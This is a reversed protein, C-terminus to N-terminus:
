RLQRFNQRGCNFRNSNATTLTISGDSGTTFFFARGRDAGCARTGNQPAGTATYPETPTFGACQPLSPDIECIDRNDEIIAPLNPLSTTQFGIPLTGPDGNGPPVLFDGVGFGNDGDIDFVPFEPALGTRVDLAMLFGFGGAACRNDDPVLTVFFVIDGIPLPNRVIREGAQPLDAFWGRDEPNGTSTNFWVPQDGDPNTVVRFGGSTGITTEHLQSRSFDHDTTDITPSADRDWIAYFSQVPQNLTTVDTAEIFKGTGFLVLVGNNIGAPHRKVSPRSTISQMQGSGDRARFLPQGSFDAEWSGPDSSSVDFKWMNGNLDGAYILDAKADNDLDVVAPEALGNPNAVDPTGVTIKRFDSATWNGDLGGDIFLIFLAAQGTTSANGDAVTNNYGNGFIVAWRNNQMRAIQPRSFTFGLDADDEDTFEWLVDSPGFTEPDTIELAYVLQGGSRLGGALVSHWAGGFFADGYRPSGDVFFEHSYDPDTLRNLRPIVRSPVYAFLEAGNDTAFSHLMGDNGGIYLAQRRNRNADFFAPYNNFGFFFGPAGVFEPDSNVLDGLVFNRARFDTGERSRDGRLYALREDGLTDPSGTDPDISLAALLPAFGTDFNVGNGTVPDYTVITRTAPSRANLVVHSEWASVASTSGDPNVPFALLEGHWDRSDFRAQFVQSATSFSGTNAAGSAASGARLAINQLVDFIGDVVEQPRQAAIFQGRANFAAHWLDDVRQIPDGSTNWWEASSEVLSPDPWGDGDTDVLGTPLGYAVTYTVMHQRPNDDFTDVPVNDPLSTSLDTDYFRRAVDALTNSVNDGDVNGVGPNGGNWFGDTFLLTFNKQCSEIIPSPKGSLSGLYYDGTRQLARRLPTGFASWPHDLLQQRLDDNHATFNTTSAAPMEVFLQDWQNILSIGYRFDPAALVVDNIAGRAVMHRRRAYQYWNAINQKLEGLSQNNIFPACTAATLPTSTPNLDDGSPAYDIRTCTVTTNTVTVRVHSDWLDVKGNPTDTPNAPNPKPGTAEPFGKNDIWIAFKFGGFANLDTTQTFGPRGTQPNARVANFDADPFGRWPQYTVQPDFFIINLDSSFFRWDLDIPDVGRGLCDRTSAGGGGSWGPCNHAYASESVDSYYYWNSTTGGPGVHVMTDRWLGFTPCSIGVISTYRCSIFHDATLTEWDMSGSDDLKIFVNPVVGLGLFLPNNPLNLLMAGAPFSIGAFCAVVFAAAAIPLRRYAPKVKM